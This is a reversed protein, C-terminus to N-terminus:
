SSSGIRMNNLTDPTIEPMLTTLLFLTVQCNSLYPLLKRFSFSFAM